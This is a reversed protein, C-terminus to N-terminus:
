DASSTALPQTKVPQKLRLWCTVWRDCVLLLGQACFYVIWAIAVFLGKEGVAKFIMALIAVVFTLKMLVGITIKHDVSIIPDFFPFGDNRKRYGWWIAGIHGMVVALLSALLLFVLLESDLPTPLRNPFFTGGGTVCLFGTLGGYVGCAGRSSIIDGLSWGILETLLYAPFLIFFGYMMGTLFMLVIQIALLGLMEPHFGTFKNSLSEWVIIFFGQAIPYCGAALVIGRSATGLPTPRIERVSESEWDFEWRQRRKRQPDSDSIPETADESNNAM